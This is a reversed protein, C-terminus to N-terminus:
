KKRQADFGPVFINNDVQQTEAVIFKNSNRSGELSM